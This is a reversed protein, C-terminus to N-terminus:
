RPSLKYIKEIFRTLGREKFRPNEELVNQSYLVEVTYRQEYLVRVEQEEVSFPPGQMESQPYELTSLLIPIGDPFLKSLHSVYQQRLEPPLAILSARDYIANVEKLDDAELAFYDGCLLSLSGCDWRMFSGQQTKKSPLDNEKFFAEVALPSIEVGLVAHGQGELWLMDRSKGCLPVFVKCKNDLGLKSWYTKLHTNIENQHFGIENKEWRDLWFNRDM